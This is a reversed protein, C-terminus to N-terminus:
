SGRLWQKLPSAITMYMRRIFSSRHFFEHIKWTITYTVHNLDTQAKSLEERLALLELKTKERSPQLPQNSLREQFEDATILRLLQASNKEFFPYKETLNLKSWQSIQNDSPYHDTMSAFRDDKSIVGCGYDSNITFYSIDKTFLVVDLYAAYTVGCWGGPIYHPTAIEANPPLCDHILIVGGPKILQLSYVIDRLSAEYTHFPDIFILDFKEGSKLINAYLGEGSEDETSLDIVESDSFNELRRYMVRMRRTFQNKDVFAYTHGTTRSCIELYSTYGFRKALLLAMEYKRM